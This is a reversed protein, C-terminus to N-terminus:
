RGSNRGALRNMLYSKGTRYLGAIAVVNLPMEIKELARVTDDVVELRGNDSSILCMPKEFIWDQERCINMEIAIFFIPITQESLVKDTPLSSFV